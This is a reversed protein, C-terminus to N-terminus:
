KLERREFALVALALTAAVYAGAYGLALALHLLSAGEGHAVQARLNFLELNPIVYSAGRMLTGVLGPMQGAFARLDATWFGTAYLGLTYAISLVPTSLSSFLVALAALLANASAIMLTAQAIPGVIEPGRVSAGLAMLVIGMALVAAGMTATLGAWKGVLYQTRSVPRSLVVHITRRELEKHVLQTGVLVVIAIGILGLAALGLDVTIRPGEGLAIPALLKSMALAAAAFGLVLFLVRDRVAERFTSRAVALIASM